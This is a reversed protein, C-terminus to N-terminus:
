DGPATDARLRNSVAIVNGDDDRAKFKWYWCCQVESPADWRWTARGKDNFTLVAVRHYRTEDPDRQYLDVRGGAHWPAKARLKAYWGIAVALSTTCGEDYPYVFCATVNGEAGGAPVEAGFATLLLLVAAM